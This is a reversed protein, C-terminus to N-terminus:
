ITSRNMVLALPITALLIVAMAAFTIGIGAADALLGYLIPAATGVGLTLTYFLGYGRARREVHVTEAVASYIASSTGNLVFGFVVLVPILLLPDVPVVALIALATIGETIVIVGVNGFRDALLGCGLKGAAGCTFILTLLLSVKETNLGKGTMLFPLFTLAASRTADDIVGIASILAFNFPKQIGWGSVVKGDGSVTPSAKAMPALRRVSLAYGVSAVVGLAGLALVAGRWGYILAVAGALAPLVMKGLDGSFNLISIARGRGSKEYLKSVMASGIPHQANGGLSGVATIAMLSWFGAAAAMAAFGASLWMMGGGLLATEAIHDVLYGAPLQFFSSGGRLVARLSGVATYSLHLDLAILPLLPYFAAALGDTVLHTASCALLVLRDSREDASAPNDPSDTTGGVPM